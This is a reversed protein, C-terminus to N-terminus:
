EELSCIWELPVLIRITLIIFKVTLTALDYADTRQRRNHLKFILSHNPCKRAFGLISTQNPCKSAFGLISMQHFILSHNPCNSAFGLMNMQHNSKILCAYSSFLIACAVSADRYAKIQEFNRNCQDKERITEVIYNKYLKEVEHM